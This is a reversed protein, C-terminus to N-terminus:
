MIPRTELGSFRNFSDTEYDFNFSSIVMKSSYLIVFVIIVFCFCYVLYRGIACTVSCYKEVVKIFTASIIDKKWLIKLIITTDM